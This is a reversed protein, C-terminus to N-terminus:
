CAQPSALADIKGILFWVVLQISSCWMCRRKGVPTISFTDLGYGDVKDLEKLKLTKFVPNYRISEFADHIVAACQAVGELTDVSVHNLLIDCADSLAQLDLWAVITELNTYRSLIRSTKGPVITSSITCVLRYEGDKEELNFASIGLREQLYREVFWPPSSSNENRFKFAPNSSRSFVKETLHDAIAQVTADEEAQRRKRAEVQAIVWLRRADPTPEPEPAPTPEPEPAPTPEPEPTPTPEPAPTAKLKLQRRAKEAERRLQAALKQSAKKACREEEQQAKIEKACELLESEMSSIEVLLEHIAPFVRIEMACELLESEMSSVEVFLGHIGTLVRIEMACELLESEVLSIEVLLGHIGALV